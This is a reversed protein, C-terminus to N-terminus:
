GNEKKELKKLWKEADAKKGVLQNLQNNLQVIQLNYQTIEKEIEEKLEAKKDAM